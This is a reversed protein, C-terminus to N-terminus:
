HRGPGRGRGGAARGLRALAVPRPGAARSPRPGRPGAGPRPRRPRGPATGCPGRGVPCGAIGRVVVRGARRRGRPRRRGRGVGGVRRRGSADAPAPVGRARSGSRPRRRRPSRVTLPARQRRDAASPRRRVAAGPVAEPGRGPGAVEGSQRDASGAGAGGGEGPRRVASGAPRWSAPRLARSGVGWGAGAGAPRAAPTAAVGRRRGPARGVRGGRGGRMPPAEAPAVTVGVTVCEGAGGRREPRAVPRARAAPASAAGVGARGRRRRDVAVAPAPGSGHRRVPPWDAAVPPEADPRPEDSVDRRRRARRGGAPSRRSGAGRVGGVAAGGAGSPRARWGRRGGRDAAWTAACTATSRPPGVVRRVRHGQHQMGSLRPGTCTWTVRSGPCPRGSGARRGRARGPRGAPRAARGAGRGPPPRARRSSGRRRGRCPAARQDSAPLWDAWCCAPGAATPRGPGRALRVPGVTADARPRPSGIASVAPLDRGGVRDVDRPTSKRTQVPSSRGHGIWHAARRGDGRRRGGRRTSRGPGSPTPCRGSAARRRSSTGPGSCGSSCRAVHHGLRGGQRLGLRQLRDGVLVLLRQRQLAREGRARQDAVRHGVRGGVAGGLGADILATWIEDVSLVVVATIPPSLTSMPRIVSTPRAVQGGGGGGTGRGAERAGSGLLGGHKAGQEGAM